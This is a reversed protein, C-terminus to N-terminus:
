FAGGTMVGGDVVINIGTIWRAAPSSLFLCADAVDEPRGLRTLPAASEWRDVGDPWQEEIGERWMLGPSVCNVRIGFQGLEQASAKTHMIVGSKAVSYHSHMAAPAEGEISAINVIAGGSDKMQAAAARTCNFVSYLNAKLVEDWEEPTMDMVSALPFSGANNILVDLGGLKESAENVLASAQDSSTVDARIAVAENGSGVLDAVLTEAADESTHYNVAVDAGAESFRRAIGAGLGQGAGTVLVKKTSFNLLDSTTPVDM